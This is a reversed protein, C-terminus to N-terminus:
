VHEMVLTTLRALFLLTVECFNAHFVAFNHYHVIGLTGFM